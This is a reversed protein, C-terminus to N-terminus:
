LSGRIGASQWGGPCGLSQPRRKSVAEIAPM